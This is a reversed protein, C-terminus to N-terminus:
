KQQLAFAAGPLNVKSRGCFYVSKLHTIMIIGREFRAFSEGERGGVRGVGVKM